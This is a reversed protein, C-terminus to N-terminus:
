GPLVAAGPAAGRQKLRVLGTLAWGVGAGCRSLAAPLSQAAGRPWQQGPTIDWGHPSVLPCWCATRQPVRGLGQRSGAGRVEATSSLAAHGCREEAQAAHGLSSGSSAGLSPIQFSAFARLVLVGLGAQARGVLGPLMPVHPHIGPRPQCGAKGWHGLGPQAWGQALARRPTLFVLSKGHGAGSGPNSSPRQGRCCGWSCSRPRQLSGDPLPLLAAPVLSLRGPISLCCSRAPLLPPSRVPM